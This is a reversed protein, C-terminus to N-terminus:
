KNEKTMSSENKALEMAQVCKACRTGDQFWLSQKVPVTVESGCLSCPNQVEM